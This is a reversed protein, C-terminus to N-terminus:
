GCTTTHTCPRERWPRSLGHVCVVVHPHHPNGTANWEWWAMRHEQTPSQGQRVAAPGPCSVYNLRPEIM